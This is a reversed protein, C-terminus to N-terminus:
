SNLYKLVDDSSDLGNNFLETYSDTRTLVTITENTIIKNSITENPITKTSGKQLTPLDSKTVYTPEKKYGVKTGNQLKSINSKTVQKDLLDNVKQINVQYYNKYPQNNLSKKVVSLLGLDVLKSINARVIKKSIGMFEAIRNQQQYFEGDFLNQQLDIFHELIISQIPGLKSLLSKRLKLFAHAKNTKTAM